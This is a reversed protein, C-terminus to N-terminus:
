KKLIFRLITRGVMGLGRNNDKGIPVIRKFVNEHDGDRM